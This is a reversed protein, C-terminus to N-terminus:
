AIMKLSNLRSKGLIFLSYFLSAPCVLLAAEASKQIVIPTLCKGVAGSSPDFVVPNTLGILALRVRKFSQSRLQTPDAGRM